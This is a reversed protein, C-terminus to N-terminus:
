NPLVHLVQQFLSVAEQEDSPDLPNASELLLQV